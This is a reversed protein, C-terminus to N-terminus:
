DRLGFIIRPTASIPGHMTSTGNLDIDEMKYFYTKRNKVDNDIFEYSAGQTSSGKAPILAANIKIYAGNESEARYLNFGANDIESETTWQLIVKGAKPTATFSNLEIFTPNITTTTTSATTTTTNQCADGIGDGNADAQDPNYVYCNDCINVIGDQDEDSCDANIHGCIRSCGYHCQVNFGCQDFCANNCAEFNFGICYSPPCDGFVTAHTQLIIASCVITVCLLKKILQTDM